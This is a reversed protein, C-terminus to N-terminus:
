CVQNAVQIMHLAPELNKTQSATSEDQSMLRTNNSQEQERAIELATKQFTMERSVQPGRTQSTQAGSENQNVNKMNEAAMKLPLEIDKKASGDIADTHEDSPTTPDSNASKAVYPPPSSSLNTTESPM